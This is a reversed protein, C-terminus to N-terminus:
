ARRADNAKFKKTFVYSFYFLKCLFHVVTGGRVDIVKTTCVGNWNSVFLSMM